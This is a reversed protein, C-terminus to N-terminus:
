YTFIWFLERLIMEIDGERPPVTVKEIGCFCLFSVDHNLSLFHAAVPFNVKKKELQVRINM